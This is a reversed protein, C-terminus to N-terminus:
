TKKEWMEGSRAVCGTPTEKVRGVMHYGMSRMINAVLRGAAHTTRNHKGYDAGFVGSLFPDAGAIAPWGQATVRACAERVEQSDVVATMAVVLPDDKGRKTERKEPAGSVVKRQRGDVVGMPQQRREPVRLLEGRISRDVPRWWFGAHLNHGMTDDRVVHLGLETIRDDSPNFSNREDPEGLIPGMADGTLKWLAVWNRGTSCRWALEVAVPGHRPSPPCGADLLAARLETKWQKFQVSGGTRCSFHGWGALDPLKDSSVARGVKLTSGGGVKKRATVYRFLDQGLRAVVPTLYNELDHHRLLRAPQEVDIDMELFLPEDRIRLPGIAVELRDLYEQLRIQAPHTEREWSALLPKIGDIRCFVEASRWLQWRNM